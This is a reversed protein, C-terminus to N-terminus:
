TKFLKEPPGASFQPGPKLPASMLTNDPAVFFLERGDRSWRPDSGGDTSVVTVSGRSYEGTGADPTFPAVHVEASGSDLSTYAIWHGDPSFKAEAQGGQTNRFPLPRHDGGALPLIMLKPAAGSQSLLLFKGDPSVDNLYFISQSEYILEEQGSGDAPRIAVHFRRPKNRFWTFAIRTGGPLFLPTFEWGDDSTLRQRTKRAMDGLWLNGFDHQPTMQEWAVRRDDASLTHGMLAEPGFVTELEKGDRGYWALRSRTQKVQALLTMGSSVVSLGAIGPMSAMAQPAGVLRGAALDFERSECANAACSVLYYKGSGPHVAGQTYTVGASRRLLTRSSGDLAALYTGADVEAGSYYLFRKGDPLFQAGTQTFERRKEDFPFISQPAGGAAEVKMLQRKRDPELRTFLITGQANWDWVWGIASDCVVRVTGTSLDVTEMRGQHIYVISRGDSSWCFSEIGDTGPVLRSDLSEIPRTWLGSKTGDPASLIMALRKGDPSLKGAQIRQGLPPSIEFTIPGARTQRQRWLSVATVGVALLAAAAIAALAWRLRGRWWHKGGQPAAESKPNAHPEADSVAELAFALDRASEFRDEPRKELCHRVVRSVGPALQPNLKSVEPPDERLVATLMEAATQGRFARQGTLLEYLIVGFSFIDSRADATVGMAQEPSMYGATGLVMGPTTETLTAEREGDEPQTLKALGFDLIKIRGDSTLFLNAPKLDRHVIGKQHAAALGSAVQQAYALAKKLPIPGAALRAQLTEGELLESVLYSIGEHTGVDFVTLINPHNLVSAARAEQEFRRLRNRDGAVAAPLVKLAVDRRLRPDRARYVEGMGGKGILEVIEFAGIREGPKLVPHENSAPFAGNDLLSNAGADARLLSLVESRLVADEPCAQELFQARQEAPQQQAAEFLMEVKKWREPQM